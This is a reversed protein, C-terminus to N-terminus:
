SLVRGRIKEILSTIDRGTRQYEIVTGDKAYTAHDLWDKLRKTGDPKAAYVHARRTPTEPSLSFLKLLLADREAESLLSRIDIGIVAQPDISYYDCYSKNAYTIHFGADFVVIMDVDTGERAKLADEIAKLNESDKVTILCAPQDNWNILASSLLLKKTHGNRILADAEGTKPGTVGEIAEVTARDHPQVLTEFPLSLLAAPEVEFMHDAAANAAVVRGEQVILIADFSLDFLTRYRHEHAAARHAQQYEETLEHIMMLVVVSGDSRDLRTMSAELPFTEGNSRLGSLTAEPGQGDQDCNLAAWLSAHSHPVTGFLRFLSTVSGNEMDRKSYGFMQEAAPNFAKVRGYTDCVLLADNMLSITTEFQRISDDLYSKLTSTVHRAADATSTAATLLVQQSHAVKLRQAQERAKDRRRKASDFPWM